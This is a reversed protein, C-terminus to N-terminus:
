EHRSGKMAQETGKYSNTNNNQVFQNDVWLQRVSNRNDSLSNYIIASPLSILINEQQFIWLGLFRDESHPSIKRVKEEFM